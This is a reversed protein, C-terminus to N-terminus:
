SRARILSLVRACGYAQAWMAPEGPAGGAFLLTLTNM